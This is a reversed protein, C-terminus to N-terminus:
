AWCYALLTALFFFILSDWSVIVWRRPTMAPPLRGLMVPGTGTSRPEEHWFAKTRMESDRLALGLLSFVDCVWACSHGLKWERARDEWVCRKSIKAEQSSPVGDADKCRSADHTGTDNLRNSMWPNSMYIYIYINCSVTSAWPHLSMIGEDCWNPAFSSMTM